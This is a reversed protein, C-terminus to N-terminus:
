MKNNQDGTEQNGRISKDSEYNSNQLNELHIKETEFIIEEKKFNKVGNLHAVVALSQRTEDYRRKSYLYKPSEPLYVIILTTLVIIVSLNVYQIYRIDRVIHQFYLATLIIM